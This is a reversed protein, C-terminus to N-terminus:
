YDSGSVVEGGARTVLVAFVRIDISEGLFHVSGDAFVVNAGGTHFSYVERDNTCNVACPGFPATGDPTAGRIGLLNRSAWAGGSLYKGDVKIARQWLDPRGADEGILITHSTGDRIDAIGRSTNVLFVGEYNGRVDVPGSAYILGRLALGSNVGSMGAYDGCAATGPFKEQPPPMVTDAMGDQIRNPRASPCQWVPLQTNVVTQNPPDFWAVDWHYRSDLPEQDLDALLFAGLGHSKLGMYQPFAPTMPGVAGPPFKGHRHHYNHAALGLQKLNNRCAILRAAGRAAQVAPLLLAILMAIIAMVVLLEIMTLGRRQVKTVLQAM